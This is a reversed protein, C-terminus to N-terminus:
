VRARGASPFGFLAGLSGAALPAASPDPPTEGAGEWKVSDDEHYEGSTSAKAKVSAKCGAVAVLLGLVVLTKKKM